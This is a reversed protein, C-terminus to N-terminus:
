RCIFNTGDIGGDPGFDFAAGADDAGTEGGEAGRGYLEVAVADALGGVVGGASASGVGLEVLDVLGVAGREVSVAVRRLADEVARGRIPLGPDHIGPAIGNRQRRRLSRSRPAPVAVLIALLPSHTNRLRDPKLDLANSTPHAINIFHILPRM